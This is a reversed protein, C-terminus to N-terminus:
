LGQKIDIAASVVKKTEPNFLYEAALNEWSRM